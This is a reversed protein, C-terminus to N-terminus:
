SKMSIKILYEVNGAPGKLPSCIPETTEYSNEHAWRRFADLAETRYSEERVVGGKGVRERGVEFQPKFLAVITKEGSDALLGFIPEIVKALSIFSVDVVALEPPEDLADSKLHRINTREFVQVRDDSRLSWALQGYGVDRDRICM